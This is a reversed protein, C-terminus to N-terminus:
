RVLFRSERAAPPHTQIVALRQPRGSALRLSELLDEEVGTMRSVFLWTKQSRKLIWSMSTNKFFFFVNEQLEMWGICVFSLKLLIWLVLSLTDDTSDKSACTVKRLCQKM